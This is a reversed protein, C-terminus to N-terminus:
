ILHFNGKNVSQRSLPVAREIFNQSLLILPRYDSVGQVCDHTPTKKKSNYSL